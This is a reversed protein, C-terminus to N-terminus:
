ASKEYGAMRSIASVIYDAIRGPDPEGSLEPLAGSPGGEQICAKIRELASRLEQNNLQITRNVEDKAKILHEQMELVYRSLNLVTIASEIANKQNIELMQNPEM